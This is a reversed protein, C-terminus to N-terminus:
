EKNAEHINWDPFLMVGYDTLGDKSTWVVSVKECAPSNEYKNQNEHRFVAAFTLGGDFMNRYTVVKTCGDDDYEKTFIIAEAIPKSITGM